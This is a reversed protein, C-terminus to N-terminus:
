ADVQDQDQAQDQADAQVEQHHKEKDQFRETADLFNILPIIIKQNSLIDTM